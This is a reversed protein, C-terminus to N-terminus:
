FRVALSKRRIEDIEYRLAQFYGFQGKLLGILYAFLPIRSRVELPEIEKEHGGNKRGARRFVVM